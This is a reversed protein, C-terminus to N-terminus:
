AKDVVAVADAFRRAMEDMAICIGSFIFDVKDDIAVNNVVAINQKHYLQGEKEYIGYAGTLSNFNGNM